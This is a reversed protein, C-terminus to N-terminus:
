IGKGTFRKKGQFKLGSIDERREKQLESCESEGEERKKQEEEEM